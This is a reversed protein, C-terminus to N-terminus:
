DLTLYRLFLYPCDVANKIYRRKKISLFRKKNCYSTAKKNRACIWKKNMTKMIKQHIYVKCSELQSTIILILSREDVPGKSCRIKAEERQREESSCLLEQPFGPTGALPIRFPVLKLTPSLIRYWQTAPYERSPWACSVQTVLVDLTATHSKGIGMQLPLFHRISAQSVTSLLENENEPHKAKQPHATKILLLGERSQLADCPM